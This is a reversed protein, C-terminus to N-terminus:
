RGSFKALAEVKAAAAGSDLSEAARRMADALNAAVGAALLAAAANVLVIERGPGRAGALISWAIGLNVVRDGGALDSLRAPEIGFDSPNWSFRRVSNQHVEFVDTSGTTTVEDLGDSGHVVFARESGLEALAGAMLEAAEVSPAGILQRTAGAPNALPGLLNFVTRMKLEQRAAQAHKMAPHFAPAFMFGIGVEHIACAVLEPATLLSVGFEELLDASGCSASLSRNGHKAVRVGAGAVVFAAITSINFTSGGDGGTGCTDLLPQSDVAANVRTSKERMARVFGLLEESTEGKMRLAILFAAVQATTSEGNLIALMAQRADHASLSEGSTVRHLYPLLM